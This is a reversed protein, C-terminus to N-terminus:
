SSQTCAGQRGRGADNVVEDRSMRVFLGPIRGAQVTFPCQLARFTRSKLGMAPPCPTAEEEEEEENEGYMEM